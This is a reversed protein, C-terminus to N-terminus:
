PNYNPKPGKMDTVWDKLARVPPSTTSTPAGRTVPSRSSSSSSSSSGTSDTRNNSGGTSDTRSSTSPSVASEEPFLPLPSISNSRAEMSPQGRRVAEVIGMGQAIMSSMNGVDQPIIVTNSQSALQAFALFYDKALSAYLAKDSNPRTLAEAIQGIAGATAHAKALIAAADGEAQQIIRRKEGEGENILRLKAGESENKEQTRKGESRLEMGRKDAEARLVEERREREAVAQRDMANRVRDDPIIETIEFRLVQVGWKGCAVEIASSLSTNLKDRNHFLEDLDMGGVAARLASQAHTVVAYLPRNAGYSAAYADVVQLYVNGGLRVSVNDKSTAEQPEVRLAMERMDHVFRISDILPWAIAVTGIAAGAGAILKLFDRKGADPGGHAVAHTTTMSDAMM